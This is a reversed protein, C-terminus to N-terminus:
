DQHSSNLRTSRGIKDFLLTEFDTKSLRGFNKEYYESAIRDFAQAKLDESSFLSEYNKGM